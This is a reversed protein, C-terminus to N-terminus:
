ASPGGSVPRAQAPAPEPPARGGQPPRGPAGRAPRAPPRRRRRLLLLVALLAAPVAAVGDPRPAGLRLQAPQHPLAQPGTGGSAATVSPHGGAASLSGQGAGTLGLALVLAVLLCALPSRRTRDAPPM